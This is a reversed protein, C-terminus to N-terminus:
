TLHQAVALFDNDITPIADTWTLSLRKRDELAMEILATTVVKVRGRHEWVVFTAAGAAEWRLLNNWQRETIGGERQIRISPEETHKAEFVIMRGGRETWTGAYDLWDNPLPFTRPKGGKVVVTRTPPDVKRIRAVGRTEYGRNLIDLYEELGKGRNKGM